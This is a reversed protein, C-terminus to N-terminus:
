SATPPCARWCSTSSRRSTRGIAIRPRLGDLRPLQARLVDGSTWGNVALNAALELWPGGDPGAGLAAVLRDPWRDVPEVSTGITYSDGLAVYRLAM